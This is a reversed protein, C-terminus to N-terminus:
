VALVSGDGIFCCGCLSVPTEIVSAVTVVIPRGVSENWGM